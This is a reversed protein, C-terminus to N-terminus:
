HLARARKIFEEVIEERVPLGACAESMLAELNERMNLHPYHALEELAWEILREEKPTIM